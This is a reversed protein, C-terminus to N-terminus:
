KILRRHSQNGIKRAISSEMVCRRKLACICLHLGSSLCSSRIAVTESYDCDCLHGPWSSRYVRACLRTLHFGLSCKFLHFPFAKFKNLTRRRRCALGHSDTSRIVKTGSRPDKKKYLTWFASGSDEISYIVFTLSTHRISVQVLLQIRLLARPQKEEPHTRILINLNFISEDRVAIDINISWTLPALNFDCILPM